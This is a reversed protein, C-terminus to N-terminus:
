RIEKRIKEAAQRLNKAAVKLDVLVKRTDQLATKTAGTCAAVNTAYSGTASVDIQDLATEVQDLDTKIAHLNARHTARAALKVANTAAWQAETLRDSEIEVPVVEGAEQDVSLRYYHDPAAPIEIRAQIPQDYKIPTALRNSEAIAALAAADAAKALVDMRNTIARIQALPYGATTGDIVGDGNSDVFANHPGYLKGSLVELATRELDSSVACIACMVFVGAGVGIIM